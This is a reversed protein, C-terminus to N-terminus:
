PAKDEKPIQGRERLEDVIVDPLQIPCDPDQFDAWLGNHNKRYRRSPAGASADDSPRWSQFRKFSWAYPDALYREGKPEVSANDLRRQLSGRIAAIAGEPDLGEDERVAGILKLVGKSHNSSFPRTRAPPFRAVRQEEFWAWLQAAKERLPDAKNPSRKRKKADEKPETKGPPSLPLDQEQDQEQEQEQDQNRCPKLPTRSCEQRFTELFSTSLYACFTSYIRKKLQCQPLELWSNRWSKVVNPSAPPNHALGNPLFVLRARWDAVAMGKNELEAFSKDFAEPAWGLAESLALRGVAIVGPIIGTCPGAILFVWLTQANPQPQSLSRFKEDGWLM